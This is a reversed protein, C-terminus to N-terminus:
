LQKIKKLIELGTMSDGLYYDLFLIDVSSDLEAFAIKANTYSDVQINLKGEDHLSKIHNKLGTTLLHNYLENDEVIAIRFSHNNPKMLKIYTPCSKHLANIM